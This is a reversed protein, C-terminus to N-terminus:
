SVSPASKKIEALLSDRFIGPESALEQYSGVQAVKGKDMVYIRDANKITSLRHAIVIRTINLEDINKSILDQSESDLCNTAEDLILMSPNSILARAILLRQAEGNSLSSSEPQVVTHLGMGMKELDKDFNSMKVARDIEEKTYIGGCVINSYVTGSFISGNQLVVGMKKRLERLNLNRIDKNDFYITGMEPTEFGLLIRLLTSKGCGTSGVIAIFEGPQVDISVNELVLPLEKSYRFSINDVHVEGQLNDPKIKDEEPEIEGELIVKAREWLPFITAINVLTGVLSTIGSSFPIYASFFGVLEGISFIYDNGFSKSFFLRDSIISFFILYSIINTIYNIVQVINTLFFSQNFYLREEAFFNCWYNFAKTEAGQSKIKAIGSLLQIIVGNIFGKIKLLKRLILIKNYLVITNITSVLFVILFGIRALELSFHRMAVFYFVSFIGTLLVNSVSQTCINQIQNMSQARQVLDGASFQRFFNVPLKLLRDWIASEIKFSFLISLRMFAVLNVVSFFLQSFIVLFMGIVVEFFEGRHGLQIVNLFLTQNLFPFAIGLLGGLCGYIFISLFTKLDYKTFFTLFLTKLNLKGKPFPFYLSYAKKDLQDYIKKDLKTLQQSIPDHVYYSIGRFNLLAVPKNDLTFALIPLSDYKWFRDVLNIERLRVGNKECIEFLRPLPEKRVLLNKTFTFGMQRGIWFCATFIPDSYDTLDQSQKLSLISFKKLTESLVGKEEFIKQQSLIKEEKQKQPFYFLTTRKFTRQQILRLSKWIDPHFLVREKPITAMRTKKLAILNWSDFFPFIGLSEEWGTSNKSDIDVNGELIEMWHEHDICEGTNKKKITFHEGEAIEVPKEFDIIRSSNKNSEKQTFNKRTGTITTNIRLLIELNLEPHKELVGILKESTLKVLKMSTFNYLFFGKHTKSEQNFLFYVDGQNLSHIMKMPAETIGIVQQQCLQEQVYVGGSGEIVFWICEECPFFSKTNRPIFKEELGLGKITEIFAFSDEM